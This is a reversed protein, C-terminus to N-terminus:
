CMSDRIYADVRAIRLDAFAYAANALAARKLEERFQRRIDEVIAALDEYDKPAMADIVRIFHDIGYEENKLVAVNELCVNESVERNKQRELTDAVLAEIHQELDELEIRLIKLFKAMHSRSWDM